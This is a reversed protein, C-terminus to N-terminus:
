LGFSRKRRKGYGKKGNGILLVMAGCISISMLPVVLLDDCSIYKLVWQNVLSRSCSIIIVRIHFMFGQPRDELVPNCLLLYHIKMSNFFIADSLLWSSSVMAGMMAGIMFGDVLPESCIM